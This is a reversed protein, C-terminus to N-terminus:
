NKRLVYLSAITDTRVEYGHAEKRILCPEPEWSSAPRSQSENAVSSQQGQVGLSLGVLPFGSAWWAASGVLGHLASWTSPGGLQSCAEILVRLARSLSRM